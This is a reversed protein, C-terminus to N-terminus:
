VDSVEGAITGIERLMETLKRCRNELETKEKILESIRADKRKIEEYLKSFGSEDQADTCGTDKGMGGTRKKSPIIDGTKPDVRGLYKRKSRPQGKDKDWYSVSEYAYKNGKRDTQYVICSM